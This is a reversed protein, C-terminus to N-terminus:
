KVIRRKIGAQVIIHGQHYFLGISTTMNQRRQCGFVCLVRDNRAQGQPCQEFLRHQLNSRAVFFQM